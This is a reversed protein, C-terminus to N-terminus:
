STPGQVLREYIYQPWAEVSLKQALVEEYLDDIPTNDVQHSGSVLVKILLCTNHFFRANQDGGLAGKDEAAPGSKGSSSGGTAVEGSLRGNTASPAAAGKKRWVPKSGAAASTAPATPAIGALTGEELRRQAHSLASKTAILEQALEDNKRGLQSGGIKIELHAAQLKESLVILQEDKAECERRLVALKEHSSGVSSERAALEDELVSLSQRLMAIQEDKARVQSPPPSRRAM